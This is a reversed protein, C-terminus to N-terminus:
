NLQANSLPVPAWPGAEFQGPKRLGLSCLHELSPHVLVTRHLALFLLLEMENKYEFYATCRPQVVLQLLM